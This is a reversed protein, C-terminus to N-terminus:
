CHFPIRHFGSGDPDIAVKEYEFSDGWQATSPGVFVSRGATSRYNSLKQRISEVSATQKNTSPTQNTKGFLWKM